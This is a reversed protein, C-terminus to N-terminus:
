PEATIAPPLAQVDSNSPTFYNRCFNEMQAKIQDIEKPDQITHTFWRKGEEKYVQKGQKDFLPEGNKHKQPVLNPIKEREYIELYRIPMEVEKTEDDPDKAKFTSRIEAVAKIDELNLFITQGVNPNKDKITFTIFNSM